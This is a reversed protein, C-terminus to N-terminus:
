ARFDPLTATLARDRLRTATAAGAAPRGDDGRRDRDRPASQGRAPACNGRVSRSRRGARRRGRLRPPATAPGARRIPNRAPLPPTTTPLGRPVYAVAAPAPAAVPAPAAAIAAGAQLGAAAAALSWMREYGTMTFHVGDSARVARDCVSPDRMSVFVVGLQRLQRALRQDLEAAASDWDKFVCPPGIWVLQIARANAANVIRLVSDEVEVVYGVADNTGLSMFAVSGFPLSNIQGLIINSTIRVSNAALSQSPHAAWGVGVGLSDGIVYFASAPAAGFVLFAALLGAVIRKRSLAM